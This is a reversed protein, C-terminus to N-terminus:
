GALARRGRGRLAELGLPEMPASCGEGMRVPVQGHEKRYLCTGCGCAYYSEYVELAYKEDVAGIQRKVWALWNEFDRM